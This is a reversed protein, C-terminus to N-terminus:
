GRVLRALRRLAAALEDALGAAAARPQIGDDKAALLAHVGAAAWAVTEGALADFRRQVIPSAAEYASSLQANEDLAADGSAREERDAIRDVLGLVHRLQAVQRGAEPSASGHPASTQHNM